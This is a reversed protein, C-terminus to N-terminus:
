NNKKQSLEVSQFYKLIEFFTPVNADECSTWDEKVVDELTAIEKNPLSARDVALRRKFACEDCECEDDHDDSDDDGERYMPNRLKMERKKEIAKERKEIKHVKPLEDVGFFKADIIHLICSVFKPAGTAQLTKIDHLVNQRELLNQLTTFVKNLYPIAMFLIIVGQCVRNKGNDGDDVNIYHSLSNFYVFEITGFFILSIVTDIACWKMSRDFNNKSSFTLFDIIEENSCNKVIDMGIVVNKSEDVGTFILSLYDSLKVDLIQINLEQCKKVIETRLAGEPLSNKSQQPLVVHVMIVEVIFYYMGFVLTGGVLFLYHTAFFHFLFAIAVNIVIFLNMKLMHKGVEVIGKQDENQIFKSILRFAIPPIDIIYLFISWLAVFTLDSLLISKFSTKTFTWHILGSLLVVSYVVLYYSQCFIEVYCEQQKCELLKPLESREIVNYTETIQVNKYFIYRKVSKVVQFSISGILILFYIFDLDM